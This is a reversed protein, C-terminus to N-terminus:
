PRLEYTKGPAPELVTVELGLREIERSLREAIRGAGVRHHAPVVTALGPNDTALFAAAHAADEPEMMYRGRASLIAVHPRYLAGFM